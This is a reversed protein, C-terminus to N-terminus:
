QENKKTLFVKSEEVFFRDENMFYTMKTGIVVNEGEVARPEGTFIIKEGDAYYVAEQSTIVRNDKMFKVKGNADIRKVNGTDKEYYVLMKDCYITTDTTRAVVSNEFLGTRALNDATLMKSTIVIPGKIKKVEEDPYANVASLLLFVCLCGM